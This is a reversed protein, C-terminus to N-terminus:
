ELLNAIFQAIKQIDYAITDLINGAFSLEPNYPAPKQIRSQHEQQQQQQQQQQGLQQDIAQKVQQELLVQKVSNDVSPGATAQQVIIRQERPQQREQLITKVNVEEKPKNYEAPALKNSSSSSSGIKIINSQFSSSAPAPESYPIYSAFSSSSPTSQAMYSAFSSSSPTVPPPVVYRASSSSPTAPSPAKMSSSSSGPSVIDYESYKGLNFNEIGVITYNENTSNGKFTKNNMSGKAPKVGYLTIYEFQTSEVVNQNVSIIGVADGCNSNIIQMPYHLFDKSGTGHEQVLSAKCWQAGKKYAEILDGTGITNKGPQILSSSAVRDAGLTNVLSNVDKINFKPAVRVAYVEKKGIAATPARASSSSSGPAKMSSSSSGPAKMSSSSSGPAKMSSSSSGPARASSSSSGPARASSSSSGPARASSSSSGPARASSSSSGPARASSSSSGPARASSSSSGPRASSSSSPTPPPKYGLRNPGSAMKDADTATTREYYQQTTSLKYPVIDMNAYTRGNVTISLKDTYLNTPKIGYLFLAPTEDTTNNKIDDKFTANKNLADGPKSTDKVTQVSTKDGKIYIRFYLLSNPFTGLASPWDSAKYTSTSTAWYIGGGGQAMKYSTNIQSYEAITANFKKAIANYDAMKFPTGTTKLIYAEDYSVDAFKEILKKGFADALSPAENTFMSEFM